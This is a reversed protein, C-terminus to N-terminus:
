GRPGVIRDRPVDIKQSFAAMSMFLAFDGDAQSYTFSFLIAAVLTNARHLIM